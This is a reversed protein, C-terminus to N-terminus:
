GITKRRRQRLGVLLLVGGGTVLLVGALILQLKANSGTSPLSGASAVVHETQCGVAKDCTGRKGPSTVVNALRHDGGATVKVSYTITVKQGVPLDGTWTLTEDNVQVTGSYAKAGGNYDADDLAGSLNDIVKANDVRGKGIQKVQLTYTVTDGVRVTSASEPDSTKSYQYRGLDHSTTCGPEAAAARVASGSTRASDVRCGPSHVVNKLTFNSDKSLDQMEKVTMSYTIVAKGGVPLTGSWVIFGDKVTAKGLSAKVDRNYTADDLVNTMDDSFKAAAPRQGVQTVTVTYTVKDGPQVASGNQPDSTKVTVYRSIFRIAPDCSEAV